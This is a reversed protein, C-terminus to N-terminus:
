WSWYQNRYTVHLFFCVMLILLILDEFYSIHLIHKLFSGLRNCHLMSYEKINKLHQQINEKNPPLFRLILHFLPTIIKTALITCQFSEIPSGLCSIIPDPCLKIDCVKNFTVYKLSEM